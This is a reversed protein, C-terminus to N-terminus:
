EGEAKKSTSPKGVHFKINFFVSTRVSSPAFIFITSNKERYRFVLNSLNLCVLADNFRQFRLWDFM